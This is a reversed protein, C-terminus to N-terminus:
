GTALQGPALGGRNLHERDRRAQRCLALAAEGAIQPVRALTLRLGFSERFFEVLEELGGDVGMKSCIAMVTNEFGPDEDIVMLVPM